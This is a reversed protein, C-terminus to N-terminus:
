ILGLVGPLEALSKMAFDPKDKESGMTEQCRSNWKFWASKMVM